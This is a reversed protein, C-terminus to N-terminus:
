RAEGYEEEGIEMRGRKKRRRRRAREKEEVRAWVGVRM